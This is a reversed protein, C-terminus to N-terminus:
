ATSSAPTGVGRSRARILTPGSAATSALSLWPPVVRASSSSTGVSACSAHTQSVTSRSCLRRTVWRASVASRM